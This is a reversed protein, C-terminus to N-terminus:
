GFTDEIADASPGALQSHMASAVACFIMGGIMGTFGSALGLILAGVIGTGALAGVLGLVSSFILSAIFFIGIIVAWFGLISWQNPKTLAFSRLIATIPNLTGEIVMVPMTMCMRAALWVVFVLVPIVALVGTIATGVVAGLLSFPLAIVVAGLVYGLAFAILVGFLSPVTKIGAGLAQGVTPRTDSMLGVMASYGAFQLALTVFGAGFLPGAMDWMQAAVVEPDATPDVMAQMDPILMYLAVTPLLLFVAAVILLLQFNAQVLEVARSWCSNMDFNM